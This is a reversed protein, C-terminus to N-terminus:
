SLNFSREPLPNRSFFCFVDFIQQVNGGVRGRFGLRGRFGVRGMGWFGVRVRFGLELRDLHEVRNFSTILSSNSRYLSLAATEKVYVSFSKFSLSGADNLFEALPQAVENVFDIRLRKNSTLDRVFDM